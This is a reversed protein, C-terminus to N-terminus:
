GSHEEAILWRDGDHKMLLTKIVSDGYTDSEYDQRFRVQVVGPGLPNVRVNDIDVRIFEPASLRERRQEAWDGRSMGAPPLFGDAYFGLYAEVDQNSWAAAWDRVAQVVDGTDPQKEEPTKSQTEERAPPPEAAAVAQKEPQTQLKPETMVPGPMEATPRAPEDKPKEPEAVAREPELQAQQPGSEPAPTAVMSAAAVQEASFLDNVLALKERAATNDTDLQLAQNYADSAMKAYIDGINEYATAYSPHTNIARLLTERAKEYEGQAAYVVALNNYPEPLKPHKEILAQFEREADDFREMRTLILGKLFRMEIDDANEELGTHALELAAQLEGKKLLTQVEAPTAAAVTTSWLCAFLVAALIRCGNPSGPYTMTTM